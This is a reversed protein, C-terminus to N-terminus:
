QEYEVKAHPQGMDKNINTLTQRRGNGVKSIAAYPRRPHRVYLYIPRRFLLNLSQSILREHSYVESNVSYLLKRKIALFCSPSRFRGNRLKGKVQLFKKQMERSAIAKIADIYILINLTPKAKFLM